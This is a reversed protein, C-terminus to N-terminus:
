QEADEMGVRALRELDDVDVANMAYHTVEGSQGFTGMESEISGYERDAIVAAVPIIDHQFIVAIRCIVCDM